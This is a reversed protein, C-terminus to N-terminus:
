RPEAGDRCAKPLEQAPLPSRHTLPHQEATSPSTSGVLAVGLCILAVGAWRELPVAEGLILAGMLVVVAYSVSSVPTVYSYDAWSLVLLYAVLFLIRSLIGAWVAWSGLAGVATGLLAASTWHLPGLNRMGERLFVNGLPGIVIMFGLLIFTKAKVRAPVRAPERVADM